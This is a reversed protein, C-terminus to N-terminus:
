TGRRLLSAFTTASEAPVLLVDQDFQVPAERTFDWTLPTRFWTEYRQERAFALVDGITQDHWALCHASFEGFIVPRDRELFRTGGQLVKLDYGDTDIKVVSCRAALEGSAVLEDLTRVVIEQRVCEYTSQDPLINATGTGEGAHLDGEVQIQATGATAGLAFPVVQVKEHLGNLDINARLVAVNDPVAEVAVASASSKRVFPISIVGINAGVDLLTGGRGDRRHLDVLFEVTDEEYGGTLFAVRQLWSHLDLLVDFPVPRRLRARVPVHQHELGALRYLVLLLRTKGRIRPLRAAIRGAAVFLRVAM